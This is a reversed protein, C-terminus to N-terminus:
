IEKKFELGQLIIDDIDVYINKGVSKIGDPLSDIYKNALDLQSQIMTPYLKNKM